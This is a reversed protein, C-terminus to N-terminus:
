EPLEDRPKPEDAGPEWLYERVQRRHCDFRAWSFLLDSLRNIYHLVGPTISEQGMLEVLSREVRRCVTRAVHLFSSLETGGPLVFSRLEPVPDCAEDIWGELEKVERIGVTRKTPWTVDAPCALDGGIDFLVNQISAVRKLLLSSSQACPETSRHVEKDLVTRIVGMWSNLEDVEGYVEVRLSAKSIRTGGVLGTM